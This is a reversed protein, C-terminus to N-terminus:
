EDLWSELAGENEARAAEHYERQQNLFRILESEKIRWRQWPSKLSTSPEVHLARQVILFRITQWSLHLLEAAEKVTLSSDYYRSKVPITISTDMIVYM